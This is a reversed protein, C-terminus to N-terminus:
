VILPIGQGLNNLNFVLVGLKQLNGLLARTRTFTVNAAVVGVELVAGDPAAMAFDPGDIYLFGDLLASSVRPTLYGFQKHALRWQISTGTRGLDTRGFAAM